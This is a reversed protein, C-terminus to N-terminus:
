FYWGTRVVLMRTTRQLGQPNNQPYFGHAQAPSGVGDMFHGEIKLDWFHAPDFRVTVVRDHIHDRGPGTVPVVPNILTVHYHSYYSGVEMWKSLRYAGSIFGAPEDSGPKRVVPRGPIEATVEARRTHDRYEAEARFNGRTYEGYFVLNRDLTTSYSFLRPSAGLTSQFSRHKYALSTGLMLGPIPSNWRLDFGAVRGTIGSTLKGGQAQIGYRYGGRPDDSVSGAFAEYSLTGGRNISINGYVSGGAHAINVSRLDAPYTAQPLLAWTHLFEQDQTDNFLGLPTKVKGARFGIWDRLRYDAFAWDLYVKGKGLDGIYRDYVQAGVRLRDTVQASANLGGETFFSGRSTNMTLYNNDSSYAWGGSLYGHIQIQSGAVNFNVQGHLLSPVLCGALLAVTTVLGKM